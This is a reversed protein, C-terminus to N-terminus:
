FFCYFVYIVVVVICFSTRRTSNFTRGVLGFSFYWQSFSFVINVRKITSFSIKVVICIRLLKNKLTRFILLTLYYTNFLQELHKVMIDDDQLNSVCGEMVKLIQSSAGM